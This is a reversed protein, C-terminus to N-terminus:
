QGEAAPLTFSFTTGEGPESEVSIEGGHREVIRQCLALGIGTGTHEGRSHLRQFVEFVREQDEPDIGIGEDHVSVVWQRGRREADVHIRPPEDGSYTIANTLLNQFVQRLQSADGEVRPLRDVTIEAESEEIQFQLDSVVDALVADLEVPELPDGRTEVRSYALLGEIMERMRDAGDVAFELFEEGDADLEDGYRQEILRLYSSVMRLPEQLDHSAAYAFHELRENSEELQAVTEELRRQYATRETIDSLTIVARTVDGRADRIPMGRVSLIRREGDRSDIEFTGPETVEEGQLVRAITWEDRELPEGTDAWRVSFQDYDDFSDADFEDVGWIEKAARNAEVIGGNQEAVVVGVPLIEFLSQFQEKNRQLELETRKRETIDTLAGPFTEPTGSEDYEVHGRAVVWRLEGDANWVRYEEEYEEGSEVAAEIRREVRDRDAEHISSTIRDLPVGERAANPDVGLKKAFSRGTVFQDEPIHWEWTGVAGAETAAELQTKADELYREREKQETIDQAMMMGTIVTGREDTIPVAHIAWEQDAYSIEITREEGELAALFAPELDDIMEEPWVDYFNAGELDEPDVPIRDFGQGAALTYELDPDFLTVLGNPFYEALTRYRRESEELAQQREKRETIDRFYVSIGTESPYLNAEVWFDLTDYYLEYNTPEQTELATHFADWVEDLDVLDPFVDWLEEGVLEEESHQLLEEARDNVHTFRFEDDVAYFADSIRSLMRQLETELEQELEWRDTMDRTVKLYGRHNGDDDRVATITVNAWFQTGDQRVRWGEDEVSGNELAQELNHEPVGKARDADTYFTSIHEGLIEERDYGKIQAAGENWSIIHGDADLRFIAYEEVADVLSHFEAQNERLAGESRKQDSIDYYLEVRGGAYEGSEIPESQYELWREELDDGATGIVRCELGDAYSGEDYTALVTEAFSGPEAVTEALTDELVARNDRGVISERELGFVDEFTEDVWVVDFADDLVVVGINADDLITTISGSSTDAIDTPTSREVDTAHVKRTPRSRDRAVGITGRFEDGDVIPNIRLEVPLTGGDATRVDLELTAADDDSRLRIAIEREIADITSDDLLLSVHEGVLEDRAYGTADVLEDNVAVFRGDADLQYLGDDITEVLARYRSLALDDDVEGWFSGDTAGTRTSM